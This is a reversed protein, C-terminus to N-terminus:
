RVAPATIILDGREADLTVRGGVPLTANHPVHGFPLGSVVPVKLPGLRDKLVDDLSQRFEGATHAKPDHCNECVGVAVGAVQQLVGANLLHTLSRDFRYPKEDVDELFLIKNRFSPRFPTGILTTLLTINGGILEGSAKGRRVISVTKGDYGSCISGAAVPQTLIRLWSQRSFEPSDPDAFHSATMPGHFSLLNSKKLFACHLATIDSFGAFVKPNQRIINYDLLPLLRPTGYGGRLCVIGKVKRDGFMQMIDAARERDQGALFGWRKRAHRGLKVKFGMEELATISADVAKPDPPASAPCILGLLDGPHLREPLAPM